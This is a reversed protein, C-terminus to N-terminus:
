VGASTSVTPLCNALYEYNTKGWFINKFTSICCFILAGHSTVILLQNLSHLCASSFGEKHLFKENRLVWSTIRSMYSPFTVTNTNEPETQENDPYADSHMGVNFLWFAFCCKSLWLAHNLLKCYILWNIQLDENQFWDKKRLTVLHMHELPNAWSRFSMHRYYAKRM